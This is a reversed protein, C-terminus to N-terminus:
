LGKGDIFAQAAASLAQTADGDKGFPNNVGLVM